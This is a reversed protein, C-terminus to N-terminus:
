HAPLSEESAFICVCRSSIAASLSRYFHKGPFGHASGSNGCKETQTRHVRPSLAYPAFEVKLHMVQVPGSHRWGALQDALGIPKPASKYRHGFSAVNRLIKRKSNVPQTQLRFTERRPATQNFNAGLHWQAHGHRQPNRRQRCPHPHIIRCGQHIGIGGSRQVGDPPLRDLLMVRRLRPALQQVQHGFLRSPQIFGVAHKVRAARFVVHLEHHVPQRQRLIARRRKCRRKIRAIDLRQAHQRRTKRGFIPPFQAADDFDDGFFIDLRSPVPPEVRAASTEGRQVARRSNGICPSCLSKRHTARSKMRVTIQIRRHQRIIRVPSIGGPERSGVFPIKRRAVPQAHAHHVIHDAEQHRVLEHLLM